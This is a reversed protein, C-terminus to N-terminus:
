VGKMLSMAIEGLAHLVQSLPYPIRSMGASGAIINQGRNVTTLNMDVEEPVHLVQSLPYQIHSM